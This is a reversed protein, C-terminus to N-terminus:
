GARARVKANVQRLQRSADDQLPLARTLEQRSVRVVLPGWGPRLRVEFGGAGQLQRSARLVADVLLEEVKDRPALECAM